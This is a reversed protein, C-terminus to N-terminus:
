VARGHKIDHARMAEECREQNQRTLGPRIRAMEEDSPIGNIDLGRVPGSAERFFDLVGALKVGFEYAPNSM